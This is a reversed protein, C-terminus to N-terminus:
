SQSFNMLSFLFLSVSPLESSSKLIIKNNFSDKLDFGAISAQLGIPLPVSEAQVFPAGESYKFIKSQENNEYRIM